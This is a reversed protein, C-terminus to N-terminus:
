TTPAEQDHRAMEADYRQQEDPSLVEGRAKRLHLQWWAAQDTDPKV